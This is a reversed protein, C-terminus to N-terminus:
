FKTILSISPNKVNVYNFNNFHTFYFQSNILHTSYILVIKNFLRFKIM